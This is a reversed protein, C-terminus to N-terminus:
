SICVLPSSLSLFQYGPEPIVIVTLYPWITLGGSKNEDFIIYNISGVCSTGVLTGMFHSFFDLRPYLLRRSSRVVKAM